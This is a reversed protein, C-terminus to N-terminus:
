NGFACYTYSTKLNLYVVSHNSHATFLGFLSPILVLILFNFASIKLKVRLTMWAVTNLHIEKPLIDLFSGESLFIPMDQVPFPFIPM